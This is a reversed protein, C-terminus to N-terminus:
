AEDVQFRHDGFYCGCNFHFTWTALMPVYESRFLHHKVLRTAGEWHHMHKADHGKKGSLLSHPGGNQMNTNERSKGKKKSSQKKKSIQFGVWVVGCFRFFHNEPINPGLGKKVPLTERKTKTKQNRFNKDAVLAVM